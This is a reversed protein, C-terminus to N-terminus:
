WQAYEPLRAYISECIQEYTLAVNIKGDLRCQMATAKNSAYCGLDRTVNVYGKPRSPFLVRALQIPRVSHAHKWFEWLADPSFFGDLNIGECDYGQPSYKKLDNPKM